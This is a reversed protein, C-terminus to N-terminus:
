NGLRLMVQDTIDLGEAAYVILGRESAAGVDFVIAYDNEEAVARIAANVAEVAPGAAAAIDSQYRVQVTEFTALLVSFRESEEPSLAQGARRRADLSELQARLEGLETQAQATLEAAARGSPHAAILAQSDVFVVRTTAPQATMTSALFVMAALASFVLVLIRQM